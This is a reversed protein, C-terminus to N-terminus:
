LRRQAKLTEAIKALADVESQTLDEFESRYFALRVGKLIDPVVLETYSDETDEKDNESTENETKGLLYDTSVEFYSAIRELVKVSPVGGKKWRDLNGTSMKLAEVVQTPSSNRKKSLECFTTYFM